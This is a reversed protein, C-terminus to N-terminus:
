VANLTKVFYGSPFNFQASFGLKFIGYISSGSGSMLSFIAGKEYLTKKISEIEPYKMFVNKEFDNKLEEKWTEIPQQIIENIPKSPLAPTIQSFAWSTQVLIGPNVIVIQYSSLRLPIEKLIEGRGTAICPSNIIFFPCDSGLQLAYNFLQENSLSLQFKENMLKLMFAGDASGGGLGAGTPIAKHLHIEPFPLDPFDKKLLYYAKVCINDEPNSNVPFGSLSLKLNTWLVGKPSPQGGSEAFPKLNSTQGYPSRRFLEFDSSPDRNTDSHIVELVDYFPIPYFVTELDHNGDERKRIIHLGLNIKCNPFVVM